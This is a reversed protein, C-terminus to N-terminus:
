VAELPSVSKFTCPAMLSLPPIRFEPVATWLNTNLGVPKILAPAELKVKLETESVPERCFSTQTEMCPLARMRTSEKEAQLELSEQGHLM